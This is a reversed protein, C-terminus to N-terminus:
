SPKEVSYLIIFNAKEGQIMPELMDATCEFQANLHLVKLSSFRSFYNLSIIARLENKTKITISVIEVKTIDTQVTQLLGLSEIDTFVSIPSEAYSNISRNTFYIAPHLDKILSKIRNVDNNRSTSIATSNLYKETNEIKINQSFGSIPLIFLLLVKIKASLMLSKLIPSLNERKKLNTEKPLFSVTLNKKM